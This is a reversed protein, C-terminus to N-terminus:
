RTKRPRTAPTTQRPQTKRPGAGGSTSATPDTARRLATTIVLGIESALCFDLPAAALEGVRERTPRDLRTM